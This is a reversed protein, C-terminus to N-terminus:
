AVVVETWAEVFGERGFGVDLVFALNALADLLGFVYLFTCQFVVARSSMLIALVLTYVSISANYTCVAFVGLWASLCTSKPWSEVLVGNGM